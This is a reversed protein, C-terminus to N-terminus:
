FQIELILRLVYLGKLIMSNSIMDHLSDVVSSEHNIYYKLEM